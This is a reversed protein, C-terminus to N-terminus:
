AFESRLRELEKRIAFLEARVKEFDAPSFRVHRPLEPPAEFLQRTDEQWADFFDEPTIEAPRSYCNAPRASPPDLVAVESSEHSKQPFKEGSIKRFFERFMTM